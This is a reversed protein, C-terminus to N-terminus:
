KPLDKICAGTPCTRLIPCRKPFTRGYPCTGQISQHITGLPKYKAALSPGFVSLTPVGAEGALHLPLSDMAIVLDMQLMKQQLAPLSLSNMVHATKLEKQIAEAEKKEEPSNQIIWFTGEYQQLLELLKPRPLKKNDWNSGPCVMINPGDLPAETENVKLLTKEFAGKRGSWAEVLAMYDERINNGTRPDVKMNSFLLNPFEPVSKRGFGVKTKARALGMIIGSKVNGQFDFVVDYNTARIAQISAKIEKWSFKKRWKKTDVVHAQNVLPHAEVLSRCSKEVVWDICADPVAQKICQVAPFTQVIDGLASTKIILIKM